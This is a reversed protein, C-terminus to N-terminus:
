DSIRQNRQGLEDRKKYGFARGHQRLPDM